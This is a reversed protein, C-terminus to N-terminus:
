HWRTATEIYLAGSHDQYVSAAMSTTEQASKYLEALFQTWGSFDTSWPGYPAFHDMTYLRKHEKVYKELDHVYGEPLLPEEPLRSHVLTRSGGTKSARQRMDLVARDRAPPPETRRGDQLSGRFKDTERVDMTPNRRAPAPTGSPVSTWDRDWASLRTRKSSDAQNEADPRDGYPRTSTRDTERCSHCKDEKSDLPNLSCEGCISPWVDESFPSLIEATDVGRFKGMWPPMYGHFQSSFNHFSKYIHDKSLLHYPNAAKKCLACFYLFYGGKDRAIVIWPYGALYRRLNENRQDFTPSLLFTPRQRQVWATGESQKLQDIVHELYYKDMGAASGTRFGQM